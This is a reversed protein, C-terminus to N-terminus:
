GAANHINVAQQVSWSASYMSYMTNRFGVSIKSISDSNSEWRFQRHIHPLSKWRVELTNSVNGKL